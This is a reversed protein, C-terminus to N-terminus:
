VISYMTKNLNYNVLVCKYEMQVAIPFECKEGIPPQGIVRRAIYWVSISYVRIHQSWSKLENWALLEVPKILM